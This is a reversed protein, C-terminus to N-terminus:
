ACEYRKSALIGGFDWMAAWFDEINEVSWKYLQKGGNVNAEYEKNIKEIFRTVNANEIWEESPTWLLKRDDDM